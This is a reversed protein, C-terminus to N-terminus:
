SKTLNNVIKDVENHLTTEAHGKVWTLKVKVKKTLPVLADWLERNKVDKGAATKYGRAVWAPYWEQIGKLVYESDCFIEVDYHHDLSQNDIAELAKIMATMEMINNTTNNEVGYDITAKAEDTVALVAYAGRDSKARYSGDIYLQLKPKMTLFFPSAGRRNRLQWM